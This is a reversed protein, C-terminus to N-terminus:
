VNLIRLIIKQIEQEKKSFARTIFNDEITGSFEPSVRFGSGLKMTGAGARGLNSPVFSYGVVIVEDGRTLLWDLWNLSIGKETIVDYSLDGLLNSFTTSQFNIIIGGKLTNSIPNIKVEISDVISNIISPIIQSAQGPCLGFQANLSSSDGESLLSSIEPQVSVWEFSKRKIENRIRNLSRNFLKKVEESLAKKFKKEIRLDSEVLRIPM